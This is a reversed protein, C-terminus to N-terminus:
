DIEIDAYDTQEYKRVGTKIYDLEDPEKKALFSELTRFNTFTPKVRKGETALKKDVVYFFQLGTRVIEDKGNMLNFIGKYQGYESYHWKENKLEGLPVPEEKDEEGKAVRLVINYEIGDILKGGAFQGKILVDGNGNKVVHYGDEWIDDVADESIAAKDAASASRYTIHKAYREKLKRTERTVVSYPVNNTGLREHAQDFLYSVDEDINLRRLKYDSGLFGHMNTHDIEPLGIPIAIVDDLYWAVGAENLCYASEYYNRSLILIIIAARQLHTKVELAIKEGVDNGPLSSCFIKDNPIGTNVLFDKIMDSITSDTTRHSIFIEDRVKETDGLEKADIWEKGQRTVTITENEFVAFNRKVAEYIIQNLDEIDTAYAIAPHSEYSIQEGFHNMRQYYYSLLMKIQYERTVKRRTELLHEKITDKSDCQITMPKHWAHRYYGSLLHLDTAAVGLLADKRIAYTSCNECKIEAWSRAADSQIVEASMGCVPCTMKAGPAPFLCGNFYERGTKTLTIEAGNDYYRPRIIMGEDYLKTLQGNRENFWPFDSMPIFVSGTSRSGYRDIILKLTQELEETM